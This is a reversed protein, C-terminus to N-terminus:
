IDGPAPNVSGRGDLLQFLQEAATKPTVKKVVDTVMGSNDCVFTTRVIGMYERGAMKKLQWVGALQCLEFTANLNVNIVWDWDEFPFEESPHRSQVGACNVLIDLGDMAAVAEDYAEKCAVRDGIDVIIGRCDFGKKCFEDAVTKASEGTGFITVSAGAEMLGEAIGRGLGRTGGTVIAKKGTLDFLSTM